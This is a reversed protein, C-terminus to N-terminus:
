GGSFSQVLSGVLLYWGDVLVFFILKFPLSLMMPPLMMMGMSMLVSAIVMDIIIFPVYILFGIEFARRLESIMFAPILAQLPTEEPTAVQPANAMNMFLQLDKERVHRMMFQHFPQTGRDFAESEDIQGEILPRVGSEWSAQFTPAMVFVTIFIALSMMVVNPPTTNTGLARRLISLVIVIRTFSTVMMLIAPAISLVTMLLLLQVIRGTTSNPGTADTAGLDLTFSQAFSPAALLLAGFGVMLAIPFKRARSMTQDM